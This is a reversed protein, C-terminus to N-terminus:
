SDEEIEMGQMMLLRPFDREFDMFLYHWRLVDDSDDPDTDRHLDSVLERVVKDPSTSTVRAIFDDTLFIPRSASMAKALLEEPMKADFEFEGALNYRYTKM